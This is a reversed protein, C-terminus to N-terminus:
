KGMNADRAGGTPAGGAPAHRPPKPPPPQPVTVKGEAVEKRQQNRVRLDMAPLVLPPAKPKDPEKLKWGGGTSIYEPM